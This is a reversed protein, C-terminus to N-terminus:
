LTVFKEVLKEFAQIFNDSPILIDNNHAIINRIQSAQKLIDFNYKNSILPNKGSKKIRYITSIFGSYSFRDQNYEIRLFQELKNFIELFKKEKTM